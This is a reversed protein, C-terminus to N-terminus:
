RSVQGMIGTPKFLLVLIMISFAIGDRWMTSIYAAGLGEAVGLILGGIVTGPISGIGGLIAATFARMGLLAGMTPYVADYYIGIFTGAVAAYASAVFFTFSIVFDVNIGMLMAAERDVSTARLAKGITTKRVLLQLVVLLVLCVVVMLVQLSNANAGAILYKEITLVEPFPQTISGWLIQGSTALLLSMGLASMMTTVKSASRLPYYALKEIVVGLVASCIMSIALAPALGLGFKSVMVLSLYAGVMCIDGHAFNVFYLVGFVMSYGLAVLAYVVGLTVGNIM